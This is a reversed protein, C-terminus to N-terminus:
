FITNDETKVILQNILIDTYSSDFITPTPIISLLENSNKLIKKKFSFKSNAENSIESFLSDNGIRFLEIAFFRLRNKGSEYVISTQWNRDVNSERTTQKTSFHMFARDNLISLKNDFRITDSNINYAFNLTCSVM